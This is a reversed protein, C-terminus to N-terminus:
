MALKLIELTANYDLDIFDKNIKQNNNTYSSAMKEINIDNINLDSLRTPMGIDKFYQELLLIGKYADDENFLAKSLKSLLKNAKEHNIVFKCWAIWIISLGAGHAVEDHFGSLIHEIGHARMFQTKGLGTLCNHSLSSALMLEARAEYNTPDNYAIKGYHVVTKLLGLAIEESLMCDDKYNFYRELTHMMIDVIGCATQYKSVSYTLQPNCIAFLPRNLDTTFGVKQYPTVLDNSIVCSNSLESGAASITLIVGLPLAKKSIVKKLNFDFPDKDYYYAHSILKATDLVSGGGVALIMDIPKGKIEKLVNNVFSLKPNPEVGSFELFNINHKNLSNVVDDYLGIKKISSKGYILLINKFNYSSIIEGVQHHTDKGFIMKTPSYFNFNIM